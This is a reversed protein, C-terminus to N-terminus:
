SKKGPRARLDYNMFFYTGAANMISCPRSTEGRNWGAEGRLPAAKTRNDLERKGFAIM